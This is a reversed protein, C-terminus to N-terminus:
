EDREGVFQYGLGYHTKIYSQHGKFGDIKRRINKIFTDIVRDFADSDSFCATQIDDRSLISNSHKVLHLLIDYEYKTLMASINDVIVERTLPKIILDGHNFSLVLPSKVSVRKEINKLKLMVEEMSFPKNIFDDAGLSLADIRNNVDIKASIVMIYIDSKTRISQILEEGQMNPLMLDLICIDFMTESLLTIAAEASFAQKVEHGDQRAFMTILDNMKKYDEVVLIRM